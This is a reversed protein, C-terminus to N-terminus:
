DFQRLWAIISSRRRDRAADSRLRRPPPQAPGLAHAGPGNGARQRISRLANAVAVSREARGGSANVIWFRACRRDAPLAATADRTASRCFRGNTAGRGPACPYDFFFEAAHGRAAAVEANNPAQPVAQARQRRLRQAEAHQAKAEADLRRKAQRQAAQWRRVQRQCEPDQCYRQNWRRPQYKRGCGKRLCLRARPRRGSACGRCKPKHHCSGV